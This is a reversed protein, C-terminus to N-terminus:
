LKELIIQALELMLQRNVKPGQATRPSQKLKFGLRKPMQLRGSPAGQNGSCARFFFCVGGIKSGPSRLTEPGMTSGTCGRRLCGSCRRRGFAGIGSRRSLCKRRWHHTQHQMPGTIHLNGEADLYGLDDTSCVPTKQGKHLKMLDSGPPSSKAWHDPYSAQQNDSQRTLDLPSFRPILGPWIYGLALSEASIAIQGM